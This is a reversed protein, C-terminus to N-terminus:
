AARDPAPGEGAFVHAEEALAAAQAITAVNRAHLGRDIRYLSLVLVSGGSFVVSCPIWYLALHRVAEPDVAGPAAGKPFGALTILIGAIFAGLGVTFKPVLGNAAFLVGESRIGSRVQQDEVVDAVMSTLIVIGMMGITATLVYDAFLIPWILPSGNPPMLGLLRGGIPIMGVLVSVALLSLMARKKGFRVSILPSLVIGLLSAILGGPVLFAIQQPSLGWLDVYFYNQLASAIGLGTGGLTNAGILVLLSPNAFVSGIERLMQGLSGPRAEPRHLYPIRGHTAMTSAITVVFIVVAAITGFDAYRERNMMGLPNAADKRLFVDLLVFQAVAIAAIAFFWRYALLSTRKDYDPALEPALATSPIEYAAISIRVGILALVAFVLLGAGDLGRPAHWLLYFFGAAPLAAAYMFPHRRGWRSSLNDSWYGVLPDILVDAVLSVMIAFGVWVASLGVTRNFYFQLISAALIGAAIGYATTGSGYAVKLPWSLPPPEPAQASM